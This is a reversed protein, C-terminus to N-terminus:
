PGCCPCAFGAGGAINGGYEHLRAAWGPVAATLDRMVDRENVGLVMKDRMVVRGDIVSTVVDSARAYYVLASYEGYFPQLHSQELDIVILDAKKGTELSGIEDAMGLVAASGMTQMWLAQDCPLIQDDGARVRLVNMAARMAEFPDNTMWDTGFGTKIGTALMGPLDPFIGHRPYLGPCCAYGARTEVMAALDGAQAQLLHACVVDDRLLGIDRLYELPGAGNHNAAVHGRERVSQAAHIHMGIGLRDAESRAEVHLGKDCTDTAHTGMRAMIRGEARGHWTEAFDVGRRLRAAGIEPYRTYDDYMLNELKVDFVKNAIFARLGTAEVSRALGEPDYWIDNITTIGSRLMDICGLMGTLSWSDETIEREMRFAVKYLGVTSKGDTQSRFILSAAHNHCNVFGPLVAKGRGEIVEAARWHGEPKRPGAYSIRDGIIAVEGGQVIPLGPSMPYLFDARVLLDVPVPGTMETQTM